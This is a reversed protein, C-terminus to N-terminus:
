ISTECAYSALPPMWEAPDQDGKGQNVTDTVAILQPLFPLASLPIDPAIRCLSPFGEPGVQPRTLDNAFAQRRATTWDRAGSVWAEKLPVLHDIDVDSHFRELPTLQTACSSRFAGPVCSALPWTKGDYVSFWSGTSTCDSATVVDSALFSCTDVPTFAM